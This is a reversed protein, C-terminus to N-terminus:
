QSDRQWPSIADKMARKTGLAGAEEKQRGRPAPRVKGEKEEQHGTQAAPRQLGFGQKDGPAPEHGRPGFHVQGPPEQHGRPAERAPPERQLKPDRDQEACTPDGRQGHPGRGAARPAVHSAQVGAPLPGQRADAPRPEGVEEQFCFTLLCLDTLFDDLFHSLPVTM